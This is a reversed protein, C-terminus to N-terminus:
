SPSGTATLAATGSKGSHEIRRSKGYGMAELLRLLLREFMGPDAALARDLIESEVVARNEDVARQILEEPPLSPTETDGPGIPPTDGAGGGGGKKMSKNRFEV